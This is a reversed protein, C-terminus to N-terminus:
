IRFYWARPLPFRTRICARRAIRDSRCAEARSPEAPLVTGSPQFRGAKSLPGLRDPCRDVAM